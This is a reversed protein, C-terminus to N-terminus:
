AEELPMRTLSLSEKSSKLFTYTTSKSLVPVSVSPLNPRLSTYTFSMSSSSNKFSTALMSIFESCMMPLAMTWYAFVLPISRSGTSSNLTYGPLPTSPFTLPILTATPVSPKRFSSPIAISSSITFFACSSEFCPFVTIHTPISPLSLPIKAREKVEKITKYADAGFRMVVIGGVTNGLGNFDATGMRFAPTEIVKGIDGVRIPVGNVEKIVAKEIGEKERVYGRVRVIFERGNVEVYKGGVEMNSGRIARIVDELSLGYHMMHEPYLVVRYEKEFGGVSAVEAVNPVSLLPM